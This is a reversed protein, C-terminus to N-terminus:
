HFLSHYVYSGVAILADAAMTYYPSYTDEGRAIRGLKRISEVELGGSTTRFLSLIMQSVKKGIYDSVNIDLAELSGFLFKKFGTYEKSKKALLSGDESTSIIDEVMQFFDTKLFNIVSKIVQLNETFKDIFLKEGEQLYNPDDFKAKLNPSDSNM